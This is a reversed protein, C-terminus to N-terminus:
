SRLEKTKKREIIALSLKLDFTQMCWNELSEVDEESLIKVAKNLEKVFLLTDFSMKELITKSYDLWSIANKM